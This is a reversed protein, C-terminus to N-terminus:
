SPSLSAPRIPIWIEEEAEPNDPRYDAPLIEFHPRVDVEYGAAPIWEGYVYAATPPYSHAPGRFTFVAYTGAPIQLTEFEDEGESIAEVEVAAWKTFSAHPSFQRFDFSEPYCQVSYFSTGVVQSIKHRHPMFSGWLQPTVDTAFSMERSKGRLIRDKSERIEINLNHM